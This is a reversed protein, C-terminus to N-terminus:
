SVQPFRDYFYSLVDALDKIKMRQAEDMFVCIRGAGKIKKEIEALSESGLKIGLGLGFASVNLSEIKGFIKPKETKAVEYIAAFIEKKPDTVIRGDLWVKLDKIENYIINLLSTKGIRRVGVIAIIKDKRQLAQKVQKYEYSYNFFDERKSKPETEFYVHKDLM